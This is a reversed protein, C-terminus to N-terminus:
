HQWLIHSDEMPVFAEHHVPVIRLTFDEIPRTKSVSGRYIYGNIAGSLKEGRNMPQRVADEDNVPDAYIEVQVFSPDLEGLYVPIEFNWVDDEKKVQMNGFRVQPWCQELAMHWAYLAEALSAQGTTRNLFKAATPIYIQDVYERLMRNSSFRPTLVAMSSRVRAAWGVPIGLADRNYFEPIIEQELIDYLQEAEVDDWETGMHEMGDGLVWGVDSSYAEAWWGDLESFNLGGNVLIKMGSTGCAEWPRRPTNIWLDVGQVLDQALALDYDELFVVHESISPQSAFDIFEQILKKGKNDQPHAEGAVILQAPRESDTLIRMLRDPSHLLLNPRKYDTFRRAFGITLANPNLLRQVRAVAQSEAGHQRLQNTLRQRVNNILAQRQKTRFDWLEQDPIQQIAATLSELSDLWSKNGRTRTWLEDAPASDWSPTHVGNTIHGVPVEHEPWRPYLPQFLRRSVKGHLWSVGNVSISGRLALIAMNFPESRDSTDQRGLALLENESIQLSQLYNHFYHAVLEPPFTDFAAAVPTHTTFINGARTAWLAVPFTKDNQYMFRRARELVLFAAHGENFHCVEPRVDLAEVVKWGCIGLVMEQLLRSEQKQEYLRSTIGRDSPSNLQLNSDLLYLMARGVKVEWVQLLLARGPLELTVQLWAGTSDKAPQIPLTHPDNYPFAEIQWGRNDIMQRFYGEQYLLGIGVMPVNLDSATKLYDGALVGLGGAYLPIAEGLGFEMSFYVIPHLEASPYKQRFWGPQELYSKRAMLLRHLGKRFEEDKSLLDLREASVRQLILWPNQTLQWLVPDLMNWLEDSAHNWTWRLDLALDTLEELGEPPPNFPIYSTKDM